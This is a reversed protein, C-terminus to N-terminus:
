KLKIKKSKLDQFDIFDQIRDKEEKEIKERIAEIIFQRKSIGKESLTNLFNIIDGQKTKYLQLGYCIINKNKLQKQMYREQPTVYKTGNIIPM